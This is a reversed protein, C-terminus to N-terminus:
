QLCTKKTLPMGDMSVSFDSLESNGIDYLQKFWETGGDAKVDWKETIEANGNQDIYVDLDINKVTDAYVNTVSFCFITVRRCRLPHRFYLTGQQFRAQVPRM